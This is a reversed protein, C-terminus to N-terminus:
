WSYPRAEVQFRGRVGILKLARRGIDVAESETDARVYSDGLNINRNKGTYATVKWQPKMARVGNGTGNWVKSEQRKVNRGM